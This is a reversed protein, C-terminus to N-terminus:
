AGGRGAVVEPARRGAREERAGPRGALRVDRPQGEARAPGLLPLRAGGCGAGRAAEGSQSSRRAGSTRRACWGGKASAGAASRSSPSSWRWCTTASPSADSCRGWCRPSRSSRSTSRRWIRRAPPGLACRAADAGVADTRQNAGDRARPSGDRLRWALEGYGVDVAIVEALAGSCCATPSGARPPAWTWRAGARAGRLGTSALANALKIGGRSVFQPREDVSVREEVDVLEGPKVRAAGPRARRAGGRGDGLGGGPQALSVPRARGAPHGSSAQPSRVWRRSGKCVPVGSARDLRRRGAWRRGSGRAGPQRRETILIVSSGGSRAGHDAPLLADNEEQM